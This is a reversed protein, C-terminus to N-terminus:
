ATAFAAIMPALDRVAQAVSGIAFPLGDLYMCPVDAAVRVAEDDLWFRVGIAGANLQSLERLLEISEDAPYLLVGSVRAVDPRGAHLKVRVEQRLSSVVWEAEAEDVVPLATDDLVQRVREDWREDLPDPLYLTLGWQPGALRMVSRHDDVSSSPGVSVEVPLDEDDDGVLPLTRLFPELHRHPIAVTATGEVDTAATRFTTRSPLHDFWDVYLGLSDGAIQMWMPPAPYADFSVGSPMMRAATLVALLHRMSVTARATVQMDVEAPFGSARGVLDIVATNPGSTVVLADDDAVALEIPEDTLCGAIHRLRDSIPLYGQFSGPEPQERREIRLQGHQSDVMWRLGTPGAELHIAEGDVESSQLACLGASLLIFDDFGLTGLRLTTM